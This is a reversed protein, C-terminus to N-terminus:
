QLQSYSIGTNALREVFPSDQHCTMVLRDMARTMGVYLLRVENPLESEDTPVYGLDPMMVVPFELGKSSHVTIIKVSDELPKYHRSESSRNVWEAPIGSKKLSKAVQEGTHAWRYLIAMDRWPTGEQHYQQLRDSIYAFERQLNPLKILEPAPGHREASEPRVLPISDEDCDEPTLVDQAFAYATKLVEATNRYNLRLITTRGQAQIGLSKFSVKATRNKSYISQADDYLLLLSNTEPNVMQSVLKLWEPQFDHGEDILVADYQAAPIQAKDVGTIVQQVLREFFDNGSEPIPVHYTKLQDRCWKHFNCVSIKGAIGKDDVFARLKAALAVNYCLVVIPKTAVKALHLCRYGLIMTKGSGAVGHIVRHGDGLSRALQEQQLDMIRIMDPVVDREQQEFLGKQEPVRIEPFLHYRIRDIQPLSLPSEPKWPFIQWLRTQFAEPDVDEYMEDKCIVFRSPLVEGLDTSNFQNRTINSLVLGFSWPLVLRGQYQSGQPAKLQPDTELISAITTAYGRAQQLPNAVNKASGGVKITANQKDIRLITDLNWDKVELVLLGRRPNLVIFDPHLGRGGVPVNYWLLYDDELKSELREAFRREGGTDFRCSGIAPILVAM